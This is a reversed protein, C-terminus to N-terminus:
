SKKRLNLSQRRRAAWSPRPVGGGTRTTINTRLQTQASSLPQFDIVTGDIQLNPPGVQWLNLNGDIVYVGGADPFYGFAAVNSFILNRCAFGQGFGSTQSCPPLPVQGFPANELWLNLDSGVVFAQEADIAQVLLANADVPVRPPPVQSGFPGQELWLNGDTGLVFVHNSDVVWFRDVNGDVQNRCGAAGGNCPPLPVTNFPALEQWLNGDEGLVFVEQLSLPQFGAVNGDIHYRPPPVTPITTGFGFELWLNGDRGVVFVEGPSWALFGAVNGDIRYRSSPGPPYSSEPPPVTGFPGQELWLNGDSGCVFVEESSFAQFSAFLDVNGDVPTRFPPIHPPGYPGSELWLNGDSGLVFIEPESL